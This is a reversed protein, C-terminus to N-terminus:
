KRGEFCILQVKLNSQSIICRSVLINDVTNNILTLVNNLIKYKKHYRVQFIIIMFDYDIM